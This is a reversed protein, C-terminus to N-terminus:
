AIRNLEAPGEHTDVVSGEADKYKTEWTGTMRTQTITGQCTEELSAYHGALGFTKGTNVGHIVFHSGTIALTYYAYDPPQGIPYHGVVMLYRNDGLPTTQFDWDWADSGDVFHWRWVGTADVSQEPPTM